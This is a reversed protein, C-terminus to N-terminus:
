KYKVEIPVSKQGKMQARQLLNKLEKMDKAKKLGICGSTGIAGGDHHLFFGYRGGFYNGLKGL